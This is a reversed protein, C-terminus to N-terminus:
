QPGAQAAAADQQDCWRWVGQVNGATSSMREVAVPEDHGALLSANRQATRAQALAIAHEMPVTRHLGRVYDVWTRLEDRARALASDVETVPGFHSFLLRTPAIAVFADLSRLSADYDFDPPPTAPRMEGSGPLYIGAADGVYLDGTASDVIGVHHAAHGPADFTRLRRGDGLDIADAAALARVRDAETPRLEGMLSDFTDGWVRRASAMLRSPDVLHRAGREHVHIQADPFAAALDGVGGAHDLHIHTVLITALDRPGLGLRRLSALVTPASLATGTEILCPRSSAILYASTIDAHGGMLTDLATVEAGLDTLILDPVTDTVMCDHCVRGPPREVDFRRSVRAIQEAAVIRHQEIQVPREDVSGSGVGRGSPHERLTPTPPHPVAEHRVIGGARSALNGLMQAFESQGRQWM